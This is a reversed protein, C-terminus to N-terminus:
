LVAALARTYGEPDIKRRASPEVKRTATTRIQVVAPQVKKAISRFANEMSQLAALDQKCAGGTDAALAQSAFGPWALTAGLMLGM